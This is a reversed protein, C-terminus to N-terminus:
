NLLNWSVFFVFVIYCVCYWWWGVLGVVFGVNGEKRYMEQTRLMENDCIAVIEHKILPLIKQLIVSTPIITTTTTTTPYHQSHNQHNPSMTTTTMMLLSSVTDNWFTIKQEITMVHFETTALQLQIYPTEFIPCKLLPALKPRMKLNSTQLRQVAKVLPTPLPAYLPLQFIQSILIGMSYSDMVHVGSAAIVDYRQEIREPSRYSLPTLISEHDIFHRPVMPPTPPPSHTTSASASTGQFSSLLSFNWLKVDGALTVYLSDMTLNGHSVHASTHLFSLATIVGHLGWVIQDITPKPTQQLWVAFPICPETVIILDGVDKNNHNNNNPTSHQQSSSLTTPGTTSSSSSTNISSDNPNDTDLTATVTLINPHRLKKAYGFHHLACAYQTRHHNNSITTTNSTTTNSGGIGSVGGLLTKQLSPKKAVFVSVPTQDSKRQGDHLNWGENHLNTLIPTKGISYPLSSAANGM